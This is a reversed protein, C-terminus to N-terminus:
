NQESTKVIIAQANPYKEKFEVMERVTKPQCSVMNGNEKTILMVDSVAQDMDMASFQTMDFGSATFVELPSLGEPKQPATGQDKSGKNKNKKKKKKSDAVPNADTAKTFCTEGADGSLEKSSTLAGEDDSDSDSDDPPMAAAGKPQKQKKEKKVATKSPNGLLPQSGSKGTPETAATAERQKLVLKIAEIEEPTFQSSSSDNPPNKSGSDFSRQGQRGDQSRGRHQHFQGHHPNFQGRRQQHQGRDNSRGRNQYPGKNPGRSHMGVNQVTDRNSFGPSSDGQWHRNDSQLGYNDHTNSSFSVFDHRGDRGGPQTFIKPSSIPGEQYRIDQQFPKSSFPVFDHRGGRGGPQTFTKPSSMPGEQYRYDQQFPKSQFGGSKYDKHTSADLKESHRGQSPYEGSSFPAGDKNQEVFVWENQSRHQPRRTGSFGRGGREGGRNFPKGQTTHDSRKRQRMDNLEEWIEALRKQRDTLEPGEGGSPPGGRDKMLQEMSKNLEEMKAKYHDREQATAQLEASHKTVNHELLQMMRQMMDRESTSANKTEYMVDRMIRRMREEEDESKGGTNMM